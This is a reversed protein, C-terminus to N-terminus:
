SRELRAQVEDLEKKDDVSLTQKYEKWAWIAKEQLGQEWASDGWLLFIRKNQPDAMTAKSFANMSIETENNYQARYAILIYERSEASGKPITDSINPQAIPINKSCALWFFVFINGM